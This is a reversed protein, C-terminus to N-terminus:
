APWWCSFMVYSLLHVPPGDTLLGNVHNLKVGLMRPKHTEGAPGRHHTAGRAPHHEKNGGAMSTLFSRFSETLADLNAATSKVTNSVDRARKYEEGGSRLGHQTRLHTDIQLVDRGCVSCQIRSRESGGEVSFCISLCSCLCVIYHLTIFTIETVTRVCVYVCVSM